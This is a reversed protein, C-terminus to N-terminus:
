ETKLAYKKVKTNGWIKLNEIENEESLKLEGFDGSMKVMVESGDDSFEHVVIGKLEIPKGADWILEKATIETKLIGNKYMPFRSDKLETGENETTAYFGMYSFRAGKDKENDMKIAIKSHTTHYYFGYSVGVISVVLLFFFRVLSCNRNSETLMM